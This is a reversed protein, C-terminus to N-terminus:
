LLRNGNIILGFQVALQEAARRCLLMRNLFIEFYDMVPCLTTDITIELLITLSENEDIFHLDSKEVAFNVRDHIDQIQEVSVRARSRRVDSKDALIVAAAVANVPVATAEDHHEIASCVLAIEAAPMNRAQLLQFAILAGSEAHDIRNVLNGIDHLYGAIAALECTRAPYHLQELLHSATRATRRVHSFSHETFGIAHLVEDGIEIYTKIEQDHLIQQYTIPDSGSM